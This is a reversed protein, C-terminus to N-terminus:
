GDQSGKETAVETALDQEYRLRTLARWASGRTEHLADGAGAAGRAELWALTTWQQVGALTEWTTMEGIALGVQAEYARYFREAHPGAEQRRLVIGVRALDWRPDGLAAHEWDVVATVGRADVYLRGAELDGHLVCLPYAEVEIQALEDLAEVLGRDSCTRALSSLRAIEGEVQVKPLVRRVDTPPDLRHLRALLSAAREAYAELDASGAAPQPRGSPRATLLYPAQGATGSAYLPPVPLGQRYLWCGVEWERAAKEEDEVSWWTWRDAYRRVILPEVRPRNGERWALSFSVLQHRGEDRSRVQSIRQDLREPFSRRCLLQLEAFLGAQVM